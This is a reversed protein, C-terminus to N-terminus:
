FTIRHTNDQPIKHIVKYLLNDHGCTKLKDFSYIDLRIAMSKNDNGKISFLM